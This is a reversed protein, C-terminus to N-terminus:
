FQNKYTKFIEEFSIKKNENIMFLINDTYIGKFFENPLKNLNPADFNIYKWLRNLKKEKQSRTNNKMNIITTFQKTTLKYTM